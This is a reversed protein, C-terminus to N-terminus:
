VHYDAPVTSDRGRDAGVLDFLVTFVVSVAINLVLAYLAAYGPVTLGGIALPFVSTSFATKGATAAMWTGLSIGSAWGLLLAWRHLWRTYLGILVAPLTQSMWIGGLLQLQIAYQLPLFIIFALAGVKVVLSVIKAM